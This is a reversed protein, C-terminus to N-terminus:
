FLQELQLQHATTLVKMVEGKIYNSGFAVYPMTCNGHLDEVNLHFVRHSQITEIGNRLLEKNFTNIDISNIAHTLLHEAEPRELVYRPLGGWRSAAWLM